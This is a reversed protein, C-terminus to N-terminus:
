DRNYAVWRVFKSDGGPSFYMKGDIKEGEMTGVFKVRRRKGSRSKRDCIFNIKDGRINIIVPAKNLTGLAIPATQEVILNMKKDSDKFVLEWHGKLDMYPMTNQSIGVMTFYLFTLFFLLTHLIIKGHVYNNM